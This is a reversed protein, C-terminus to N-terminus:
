PLRRSTLVADRDIARPPWRHVNAARQKSTWFENTFTSVRADVGADTAVRLADIVTTPGDEFRFRRLSDALDISDRSAHPRTAAGSRTM